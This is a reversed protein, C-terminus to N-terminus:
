SAWLLNVRIASFRINSCLNNVLFMIKILPTQLSTPRLWDYHDNYTNLPADNEVGSTDLDM